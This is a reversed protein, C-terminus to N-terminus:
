PRGNVMRATLSVNATKDILDTLFTELVLRRAATRPPRLSTFEGWVLILYHGKVDAEEIGTGSTLRSTPGRPAALLAIFQNRGAAKGAREAKAFTKLNLVGITGMLKTKASVYSARLVQTCGARRVANQLGTGIVAGQCHTGKRRITRGYGTGNVFFRAPFLQALTLPAKDISRSSIHGWRGLSSSPSPAPSTAQGSRPNRASAAPQGARDRVYHVYYYAGGGLAVAAVLGAAVIWRGRRRRSRIRGRGGRAGSSHTGHGRSRGPGTDPPATRAPAATDRTATGAAAGRAAAAQEPQAVSAPGSRAAATPPESRAGGAPESRDSGGDVAPWTQTSTVDAAPDSVALVSYGAAAGADDGFPFGADDAEGWAPGLGDPHATPRAARNWAAFQGPPYLLPPQGPAPPYGRVPGKGVGVGALGRWSFQGSDRSPTDPRDQSARYGPVFLSPDDHGAQPGSPGASRSGPHRPGANRGSSGHRRGAARGAGDEGPSRM